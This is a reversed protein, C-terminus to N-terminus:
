YREASSMGGTANMCVVFYICSRIRVSYLRTGASRDPKLSKVSHSMGQILLRPTIGCSLAVPSIRRSDDCREQRRAIKSKDEQM